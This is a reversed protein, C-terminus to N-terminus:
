SFVNRLCRNSNTTATRPAVAAVEQCDPGAMWPRANPPRQPHWELCGCLAGVLGLATFRFVGRRKPAPNLNKRGQTTHNEVRVRSGRQYARYYTRPRSYDHRDRTRGQAPSRALGRELGPRGPALHAQPPQQAADHPRSSWPGNRSTLLKRFFQRSGHNRRDRVHSAWTMLTQGLRRPGVAMPIPRGPEPLDVCSGPLPSALAM